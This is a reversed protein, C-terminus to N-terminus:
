FNKFEIKWILIENYNRLVSLGAVLKSNKEHWGVIFFFNELENEIRFLFCKRSFIKSFKSKKRIKKPILDSM